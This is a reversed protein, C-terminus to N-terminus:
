TIGLSEFTCSDGSAYGITDSTDSLSTEISKVGVSVCAWYGGGRGSPFVRRSSAPGSCGTLGAGSTVAGSGSVDELLSGDAPSVLWSPAM